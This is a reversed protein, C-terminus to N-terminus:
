LSLPRGLGNRAGKKGRRPILSIWCKSQCIATSDKDVWRSRGLSQIWGESHWLLWQNWGVCLFYVKRNMFLKCVAIPFEHDSLVQVSLDLLRVNKPNIGRPMVRSDSCLPRDIGTWWKGSLVNVKQQQRTPSLQVGLRPKKKKYINDM